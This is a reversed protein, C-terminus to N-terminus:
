SYHPIPPFLSVHPSFTAYFIPSDNLVLPVRWHQFASRAGLWLRRTLLCSHSDCFTVPEEMPRLGGMKTENPEYAGDRRADCTGRRLESWTFRYTWRRQCLVRDSVYNGTSRDVARSRYGRRLSYLLNLHLLGM